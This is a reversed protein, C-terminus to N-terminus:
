TQPPAPPRDGGPRLVGRVKLALVVSAFALTLANAAVIPAEGLALGYALWLAVGACFMLYMWLSIASTDRTTVTRYVQPLFSFTTCAAAAYGLLQVQDM